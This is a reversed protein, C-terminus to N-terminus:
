EANESNETVSVTLKVSKGAYEFKYTYEHGGNVVATEFTEFKDVPIVGVDSLRIIGNDTKRGFYATLTYEGETLPAPLLIEANGSLSTQANAYVVSGFADSYVDEAKGDWCVFVSYEKSSSLIVTKDVNFMVSSFDMGNEDIVGEGSVNANFKVLSATAM